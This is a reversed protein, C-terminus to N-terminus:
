CGKKRITQGKFLLMSWSLISRWLRVVREDAEILLGQLNLGFLWSVMNAPLTWPTTTWIAFYLPEDKHTKLADVVSSLGSSLNDMNAPFKVYVTYSKHSDNYSLEAEALASKSSPSWYVPRYHRYILGKPYTLEFVHPRIDSYRATRVKGSLSRSSGCNVSRMTTTQLRLTLVTGRVFIM